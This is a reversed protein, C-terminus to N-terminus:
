LGLCIMRKIDDVTEKVKLELDYTSYSGASTTNAITVLAHAEPLGNDHFEAVSKIYNVNELVREEKSTDSFVRTLEIFRPTEASM